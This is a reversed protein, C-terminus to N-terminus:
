EKPKAEPCQDQVSKLPMLRVLDYAVPEESNTFLSAFKSFMKRLQHINGRMYVVALDNNDLSNSPSKTSVAYKYSAFLDSPLSEDKLYEWYSIKSSKSSPNNKLFTDMTAEETKFIRAVEDEFQIIACTDCYIVDSHDWLDKYTQDTHWTPGLPLDGEGNRGWCRKMANAVAEEFRYQILFPAKEGEKRIMEIAKNKKLRDNEDRLEELSKEYWDAINKLERDTFPKTLDVANGEANSDFTLFHFMSKCSAGWVTIGLIPIESYASLTKKMLCWFYDELLGRMMHFMMNYFNLSLILVVAMMIVTVVIGPAVGKKNM